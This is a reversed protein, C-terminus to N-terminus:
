GKLHAVLRDILENDLRENSEVTIGAVHPTLLVNPREALDPSVHDYDGGYGALCGNDLAARVAQEDVVEARSTNVLLAGPRVYALTTSDVLTRTEDTLPVNVSLLHSESMVFELTGFQVERTGGDQRTRSTAVVRMGLATALTGLTRGINGYGILGLTRGSLEFPLSPLDTRRKGDAVLRDGWKLNKSLALLLALAHEAVSRVNATPCREVHIGAEALAALDLHDTGVSLTGVIRTRVSEGRLMDGTIRERVGVVLLDYQGLLDRLEDQDPRAPLYTVEDTIEKAREVFYPNEKLSEVAVVARM